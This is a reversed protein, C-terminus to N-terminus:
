HEAATRWAVHPLRPRSCNLAPWFCGGVGSGIVSRGRQYHRRRGRDRLRERDVAADAPGRAPRPRDVAAGDGGRALRTGGYFVRGLDAWPGRAVEITRVEVDTNPPKSVAVITLRPGGRKSAPQTIDDLMEDKTLAREPEGDTDTWETLKEYFWAADALHVIATIDHREGVAILAQGARIDVQEGVAGTGVMGALVTPIESNSHRTLVCAEGLETLAHAARSGIFDLGGTVLIM